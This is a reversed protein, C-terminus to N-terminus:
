TTASARLREDALHNREHADLAREYEMLRDFYEGTNYSGGKSIHQLMEVAGALAEITSM